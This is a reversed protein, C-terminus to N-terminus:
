VARDTQTLNVDYGLSELRTVLYRKLREPERQDFYDGGLDEYNLTDDKLLHYIIVLLSHAM